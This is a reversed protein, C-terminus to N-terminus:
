AKIVDEVNKLVKCDNEVLCKVSKGDNIKYLSPISQLKFLPHIRYPHNPNGKYLERPIPCVIVDCGPHATFGQDIVPDADRNWFVNNNDFYFVCLRSVM